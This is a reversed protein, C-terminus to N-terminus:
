ALFNGTGLIECILHDAFQRKGEESLHNLYLKQGNEAIEKFKENSDKIKLLIDNFTKYDWDIPVYTKNSIYVNPYTVMHSMDAKILTAGYLFTEFDRTCIEGYGFPSVICRSKKLEEVYRDYSIKELTNPHKLFECENILNSTLRRQYGATMSEASGRYHIDITRNSTPSVPNPIRYRYPYLYRWFENGFLEGLGVNWSVGIKNKYKLNLPKFTENCIEPDDIEYKNHYYECHLRNGWIPHSYLDLNKLIQKKLYRDVYPLVEFHSSGTSDATDLWILINSQEKLKNLIELRESDEIKMFESTSHHFALFVIDFHKNKINHLFLDLRNKIFPRFILANRPFYEFLTEFRILYGKEKLVEKAWLLAKLWTFTYLTGDYFVTVKRM